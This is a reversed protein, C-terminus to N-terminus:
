TNDTTQVSNGITYLNFYECDTVRYQLEGQADTYYVYYYAKMVYQRFAATNKFKVYYDLRNKNNYKSNDAEFNYLVRKSSDGSYTYKTTSGSASQAATKIQNADSSYTKDTYTATGGAVDDIDLKSNQNIEVVLGTHYQTDESTLSNLLIGDTAMYSVIFDAYLYDYNVSDQTYQERTYTAHGISLSEEQTVGYTATITYNGVVRLNFANAYCKAVEENSKDNDTVLWYSFQQGSANTQPANIFKGQADTVYSNLPLDTYPVTTVVLSANPYVMSVDYTKAPQTGIITAKSGNISVKTSDKLNWQCDKYLDDVAPANAYILETTPVYGHAEIYSDSLTVKKVYQRNVGFRNVYKYTLECEGTIPNIDSYYNLSKVTQTEGNFLNSADLTWSYQVTGTTGDYDTDEPGVYQYDGDVGEFWSRFTNDGACTTKLTIKIKYTSNFYDTGITIPSDTMAYDKVVTTGDSQYVTAAIYYYGKGGAADSGGYKSHSLTLTGSPAPEFRAVFHYKNSTRVSTSPNDADVVTYTGDSKKIYWGKFVWGSGPIANLEATDSLSTYTATTQHDITAKSGTTTGIWGTNSDANSDADEVYSSEGAAKYEVSVNCDISVDQAYYWRGDYRYGTNYIDGSYSADQQAEYSIFTPHQNYSSTNMAAYATSSSDIFDSPAGQTIYNGNWDYVYWTTAWTGIGSVIQNGTSVIRIPQSAYTISGDTETAIYNGLVDTKNGLYDTFDKWDSYTSTTITTGSKSPHNTANSLLLSQNTSSSKSQAEFMITDYGKAALDKFDDYDYTQKNLKNAKTPATYTGSNSVTNHVKDWNYCNLTMGNVVSTSDKTGSSDYYYRSVKTYYKGDTDLLMPQGPYGANLDGSTDASKGSYWTYCAVSNGWDSIQSADVYFTIYDDNAEVNTNFYVPTIEIYDTSSEAKYTAEYIGGGKSTALVTKGNVCFAYVYYGGNKYTANMTTQITLLSGKNASYTRYAQHNSSADASTYSSSTGYTGSTIVTSGYIDTNNYSNAGDYDRVTGNKAYVTYSDPGDYSSSVYFEGTSVNYYVYQTSGTNNYFPYSNTSSWTSNAASCSKLTSTFYYNSDGTYRLFKSGDYITLYTKDAVSIPAVYVNATSTAVFPYTKSGATGNGGTVLYYDVMAFSATATLDSNAKVTVSSSTLSGSTITYTGQMTWKSFAYGSNPTATFTVSDGEYVTAESAAAAGNGSSAANITYTSKQVVTPTATVASSPMTFTFTNDGNDTVAVSSQDADKVSLATVKYGTDPTVTITVSKGAYATAESSSISSNDVDVLNVIYTPNNKFMATLATNGSVTYTDTTFQETGDTWYNFAYAQVDSVSKTLNLVSNYAYYTNTTVDSPHITSNGASNATVSSISATASSDVTNDATVTAPYYRDYITKYYYGVSGFHYIEYYETTSDSSIPITQVTSGSQWTVSFTTADEPIVVDYIYSKIANAGASIYAYGEADATMTTSGNGSPAAYNVTTNALYWQDTHDTSSLPDANTTVSLKITKTSVAHLVTNITTDTANVTVSAPNGTLTSSGYTVNDYIYGTDPTVTVSVSNGVPIEATAGEALTQTAGYADTYSGTVTAHDVSAITINATATKSIAFETSNASDKYDDTNGAVAVVTYNGANAFSYTLAFTGDTSTGVETNSSNRLSYTVNAGSPYSSANTVTITVGAGPTLVGNNTVTVTPTALTTKEALNSKATDLNAKATTNTTGNYDPYGQATATQAAGYAAQYANYTTTTYNGQEALTPYTSGLGTLLAEYALQEASEAVTITASASATTGTSATATYTIVYTGASAAAKATNFTNDTIYDAATVDSGDKKITYAGTYTIGSDVTVGPTLTTSQNVGLSSAAASLTVAPDKAEFTATVTVNSAPMTFTNNTVTVAADSADKVTVSKLQYGSAPTPTLTVTDGYNATAKDSTVSGNTATSCTVTYDSKKFTAVVAVDSTGMTGTYTNSSLDSKHDTGGVTFTDVEYGTNPTLTVTYNANEAVTVPSTTTNNVKITGNSPQSFTVNNGESYSSWSGGYLNSQRDNNTTYTSGVTFMNSTGDYAKGLICNTLFVNDYSSERVSWFSIKGVTSATTITAKYINNGLSSMTYWTDNKPVYSNAGSTNSSDASYNSNSSATVSLFVSSFATTANSADFYIVTGAPITHPVEYTSWTGNNYIKPTTTWGSPLTLDGTQNSGNNSFIISTSDNYVEVSYVNNGENTMTTGPWNISQAGGWYYATPTSWSSTNYFYVKTKDIASTTITGVLMTSMIMMVALIVSLSSKGIRSFINKM